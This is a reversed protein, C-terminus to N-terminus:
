VTKYLFFFINKNYLGDLSTTFGLHGVMQFGFEDPNQINVTNHLIIWPDQLDRQLIGFIM